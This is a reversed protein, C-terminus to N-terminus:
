QADFAVSSSEEVGKSRQRCLYHKTMIAFGFAPRDKRQVVRLVPKSYM